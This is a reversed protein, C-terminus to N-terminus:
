RPPPFVGEGKLYTDFFVLALRNLRELTAKADGSSPHGNLNRTLFPSTLSLDTLHLHGVDGMHVTFASADDLLEQNKAYQPWETLHEWSSDTYVNLVPVPYPDPNWVFRGDVVGEVDAMYPSELGIVADIDDRLRGVGLVASGGLSHGVLGIRAADVLQFVPDAASNASREVIHDIVSDIDDVRVAMWKEYYQHSQEPDARANERRVEGLYGWDVWARRGSTDTSFLAHRTHDISAVVYGHSALETFMTENSNRIGISGHSFVVLPFSDDVGSPHWLGVTVARPRGDNSYPDPRTPDIVTHSSTGVSYEGTPLLETYEPFVLAPSAALFTVVAVGLGAAVLRRIRVPKTRRSLRKAGWVALVLLWVGLAYYRPSWEIVGTLALLAFVVFIIIRVIPGMPRRDIWRAVSAVFLLIEIALLAAVLTTTM